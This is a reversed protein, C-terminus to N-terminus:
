MSLKVYLGIYLTYRFHFPLRLCRKIWMCVCFVNWVLRLGYILPKQYLLKLICIGLKMITSNKNNTLDCNVVCSWFTNWKSWHVSPCKQDHVTACNRIDWPLHFIDSLCGFYTTSTSSFLSGFKLTWLSLFTFTTEVRKASNAAFYKYSNKEEKAVPM